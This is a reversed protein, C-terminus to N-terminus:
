EKGPHEQPISGASATFSDAMRGTPAVASAVHVSGVGPLMVRELDARVEAEGVRFSAALTDLPERFRGVLACTVGGDALPRRCATWAGAVSAGCVEGATLALTFGTGQEPRLPRSLWQPQLVLVRDGLWARLEPTDASDFLYMMCERRQPHEVLVWGDDPRWSGELDDHTQCLRVAALREADMSLIRSECPADPEVRYAARCGLTLLAMDDVPETAKTQGDKRDPKDPKKLAVDRQILVLPLEDFVTYTVATRARDKDLEGELHLRCAQGDRRASTSTMSVRPMKDSWGIRATDTHGGYALVDGILDPDPRFHDVDRGIETLAAIGGGRRGCVQVDYWRSRVLQRQGDITSLERHCCTEDPLITCGVRFEGFTAVIDTPLSPQRDFLDAAAIEAVFKRGDALGDAVFRETRQRGNASITFDGPEDSHWWLLKVRIDAPARGCVIAPEIRFPQLWAASEEPTMIISDGVDGVERPDAVYRRTSLSKGKLWAPAEARDPMICVPEFTVDLQVPPRGASVDHSAEVKTIRGLITKM